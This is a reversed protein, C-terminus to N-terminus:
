GAEMQSLAVGRRDAWQIALRALAEEDLIQEAMPFLIQEEKAFHSRAVQISQLLLNQMQSVDQGTQVQDLLEEIQDHEMRMVAVPGMPGLVPDLHSFLLEDELHAHSALTATLLAAQSVVTDPTTATPVVYELHVFLAYLMGHEGLLAETIKM